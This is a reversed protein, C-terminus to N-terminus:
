PGVDKQKKLKALAARAATRLRLDPNTAYSALVDQDSAGGVDGLTALASVRLMMPREEVIWQRALTRAEDHEHRALIQLASIKSAPAYGDEALIKRAAEVVERGSVLPPSAENLRQMGLLATGAYIHRIDVLRERLFALGQARVSGSARQVLEPIKQVVYERWIEGQAEDAFAAQFRDFLGQPLDGQALLADAANNKLSALEDASAADDAPPRVLFRLLADVDEAPLKTSLAHSAQDRTGFDVGQTATLTTTSRLLSVEAVSDLALLAAAVSIIVLRVVRM